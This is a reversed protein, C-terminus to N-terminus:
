SGALELQGRVGLLDIVRRVRASPGDLRFAAGHTLTQDRLELLYEVGAADIFTVGALDVTVAAAPAGVAARVTPLGFLDVEGSIHIVTVDPRHEVAVRLPL